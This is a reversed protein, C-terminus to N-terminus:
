REYRVGYIKRLMAKVEGERVVRARVEVNQGDPDYPCAVYIGQGLLYGKESIFCLGSKSINQAKIIEVRGYFDRVSLPLQLALRRHRRREEQATAVGGEAVMAGEEGSGGKGIEDEPHGWPTIEACNECPRQLIGATGLVDVEHLSIRVVAVGHCRRCGLLAKPAYGEGAPLPPFYIQWIDKEGELREVAWSGGSEKYPELPGVVRFRARQNTVLSIITIVQGYMLPYTSQICAGYRSVLVTRGETEFQTGKPEDGLIRLPITTM